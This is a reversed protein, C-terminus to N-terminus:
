RLAPTPRAAVEAPTRVRLLVLENRKVGTERVIPAFRPPLDSGLRDLLKGRILLFANPGAQNAWATLQNVAARTRATAVEARGQGPEVSARLAHGRNFQATATTLAPVPQLDLGPGYFWVGEDLDDFFWATTGPPLTRGLEIALARHGRAANETPAVVGYGLM